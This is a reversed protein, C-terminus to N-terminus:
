FLIKILKDNSKQIMFWYLYEYKSNKESIESNKAFYISNTNKNQSLFNNSDIKFDKLKETGYKSSGVTIFSHYSKKENNQLYDLNPINLLNRKEDNISKEIDDYIIKNKINNISSNNIQNNSDNVDKNM